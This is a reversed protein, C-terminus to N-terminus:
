AARTETANWRPSRAAARASSVVVRAVMALASAPSPWHGGGGRAACPVGAGDALADGGAQDGVVGAGRPGVGAVAGDAAPRQGALADGVEGVSGAGDVDRVAGSGGGRARRACRSSLSAITMLSARM